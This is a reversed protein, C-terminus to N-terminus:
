GLHLRLNKKFDLTDGSMITKPILSDLIGGKTPFFNIMKVENLVINTNLLKPIKQFTLSHCTARCHEKVVRIRRKIVPIYENEASLNIQPGGPLSEILIKLPGFKGDAHM